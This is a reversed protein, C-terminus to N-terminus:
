QRKRAEAANLAEVAKYIKEGHKSLWKLESPKVVDYWEKAAEIVERQAKAPGMSPATRAAGSQPDLLDICRFCTDNSKDIRGYWNCRKCHGFAITTPVNM